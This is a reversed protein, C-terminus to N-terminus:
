TKLINQGSSHWAITQRLGEELSTRAQWHLKAAAKSPDGSLHWFESPRYPIAGFSPKVDAGMLDIIKLVMAKVSTEIGTSINFTEGKLAKDASAALLFANVVDDLFVFDRAQEGLTLELPKQKLVAQIVSSVLRRSSEGPGYVTFPRLTVVPLHYQRYFQNVFMWAASKSVGYQSVPKPMIDEKIMQGSPYEFCSGCYIFRGVSVMRAFKLLECTGRVNTNVMLDFDTSESDVGYAGLHFILDIKKEQQVLDDASFGGLDLPFIKFDGDLNRLREQGGQPRVAAIVSCDRALLERVLRSGIFGAAGTVLARKGSLLSKPDIQLSNV